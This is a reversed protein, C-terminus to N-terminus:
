LIKSANLPSQGGIKYQSVLPEPTASHDSSVLLALTVGGELVDQLDSLVLYDVVVRAVLVERLGEGELLDLVDLLDPSAQLFLLYMYKHRLTYSM